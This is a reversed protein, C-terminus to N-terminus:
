MVALVESRVADLYVTKVAANKIEIEWALHFELADANPARAVVYFVLERPNIDDAAPRLLEQGNV